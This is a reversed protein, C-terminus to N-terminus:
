PKKKLSPPRSPGKRQVTPPEALPAAETVPATSVEPIQETAAPADVPNATPQCEGVNIQFAAVRQWREGVKREVTHAKLRADAQLRWEAAPPAAPKMAIPRPNVERVMWTDGGTM